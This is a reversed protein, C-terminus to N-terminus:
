RGVQSLEVRLVDKYVSQSKHEDKECRARDRGRILAVVGKLQFQSIAYM